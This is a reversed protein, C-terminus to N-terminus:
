RTPTADAFYSARSEGVLAGLGGRFEFAGGGGVGEGLPRPGGKKGSQVFLSRVGLERINALTMPEIPQGFRPAM